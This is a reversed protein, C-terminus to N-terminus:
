EWGNCSLVFADSAPLPLSVLDTGLNSVANVKLTASSVSYVYDEMFVSRKVTSSPNQWWNYCGYGTDIAAGGHDVGGLLEFGQELTVRYVLLGNFVLSSGYGGNENGGECIGMPLALLQRAPFYNFALHDDTADSTTGRTGIITKHMLAPAAPDAVDFIQLQIGTFWAFDGQDAADFGLTLLHTPDMFHIYTSFGPIQLEGTQRPATPDSLDFTFLPDTKKLTVVYGRPGDFRVSRIDEGPALGQIAGVTQLARDTTFITSDDDDGATEECTGSGSHVM